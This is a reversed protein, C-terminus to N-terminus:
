AQTVGAPPDTAADGASAETAPPALVGGAPPAANDAAPPAPEAPAPAPAPSPAPAVPPAPTAAVEGQPAEPEQPVVIAMIIYATLLAGGMDLLVALALFALRLWTVDIQFYEALGGLVGAVWKGERVRYLKAGKAPAAFHHGSQAWIILLVGVAVVGIGYRAKVALGWFEMLPWPVIGLTRAGLFLGAVILVAGLIVWGTSDHDGSGTPHNQDTM